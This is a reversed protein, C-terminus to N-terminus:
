WRTSMEQTSDYRQTQALYRHLFRDADIGCRTAWLFRVLLDELGITSELDVQSRMARALAPVTPLALIESIRRGIAKTIPIPPSFRAIFSPRSPAADVPPPSSALAISVTSAGDSDLLTRLDNLDQLNTSLAASWEPALLRSASLHYLIHTQLSDPLIIGSGHRLKRELDSRYRITLERQLLFLGYVYGELTSLDSLAIRMDKSAQFCDIRTRETERDVRSLEILTEKVRRLMVEVEGRIEDGGTGLLHVKELDRRLYRDVEEDFHQTELAYSFKTKIVRGTVGHVEFDIVMTKGGLSLTHVPIIEGAITQTASEKFVDLSLASLSTAIASLIAITREDPAPISLLALSLIPFTTTSSELLIEQAALLDALHGLVVAQSGSSERLLSLYKATEVSPDDLRKAEFESLSTRIQRLADTITNRTVSLSRSAKNSSYPHLLEPNNTPFSTLQTRIGLAVSLVSPPLTSTSAIPDAMRAWSCAADVSEIKRVQESKEEEM